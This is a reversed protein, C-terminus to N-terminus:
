RGRGFEEGPAPVTSLLRACFEALGETAAERLTILGQSDTTNGPKGQRLLGPTWEFLVRGDSDDVLKLLGGTRAFPIENEMWTSVTLKGELRLRYEFARSTPKELALELNRGQAWEQLGPVFFHEFGTTKDNITEEVKLILEVNRRCPLTFQWIWAPIGVGTPQPTMQNLNIQCRLLGYGDGSPSIQLVRCAAAGNADTQPDGNLVGRMGPPLSWVLPLNAVDANRFRARLTMPMSIGGQMQALQDAGGQELKVLGPLEWLALAANEAAELAPQDVEGKAILCLAMVRAAAVFARAAVDVRTRLDGPSVPNPAESLVQRAAEIMGGARLRLDGKHIARLAIVEFGNGAVDTRISEDFEGLSFWAGRETVLRAFQTGQLAGGDLTLAYAVLNQELKAVAEAEAATKSPSSGFGLLHTEAPYEPHVGTRAWQPMEVRNM